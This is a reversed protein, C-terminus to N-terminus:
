TTCLMPPLLALRSIGLSWMTGNEPVAVFQPTQIEQLPHFKLLCSLKHPHYSSLLRGLLAPRRLAPVRGRQQNSDVVKASLERVMAAVNTLGDRLGEMGIKLDASSSDDVQISINDENSGLLVQSISFLNQEMDRMPRLLMCPKCTTFLETIRHIDDRKDELIGWKSEISLLIDYMESITPVSTSLKSSMQNALSDTVGSSGLFTEILGDSGPM